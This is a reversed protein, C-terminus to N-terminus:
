DESLVWTISQRQRYIVPKNNQTAPIWRPGSKIVRVAEAALKPHVSAANEAFVESINGERDVRFSVVVTQKASKRGKPIKLCTDALESNLNQQLYVRWGTLGGPFQAEVQVVSDSNFTVTDTDSQASATNLSIFLLTSLIIIIRM